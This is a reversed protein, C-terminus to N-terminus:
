FEVPKYEGMEPIFTNDYFDLFVRRCEEQSCMKYYLRTGGDKEIGLEVEVAGDQMCAQVYRVNYQAKPASLVAFEDPSNFMDALYDEIDVDRFDTLEHEQNRLIFGQQPGTKKFVVEKEKKFPFKM